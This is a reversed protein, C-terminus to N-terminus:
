LLFYFALLLHIFGTTVITVNLLSIDSISFGSSTYQETIWHKERKFIKRDLLFFLAYFIIASGCSVAIYIWHSIAYSFFLISLLAAEFLLIALFSRSRFLLSFFTCLSIVLCIPWSFNDFTELSNICIFPLLVNFVILVTLISILLICSRLSSNKAIVYFLILLIPIYMFLCSLSQILGKGIWSDTYLENCQILLM